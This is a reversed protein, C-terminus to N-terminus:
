PNFNVPVPRSTIFLKEHEARLEQLKKASINTDLLQVSGLRSRWATRKKRFHKISEDTFGPGFVTLSTLLPLQHILELGRDTFSRSGLVGELRLNVLENLGSLQPLGDDTALTEELSLVRLSNLRGIAELGADTIPARVLRLEWLRYLDALSDLGADGGRWSDPIYVKTVWGDPQSTSTSPIGLWMSEVSGGQERIAQVARDHSGRQRAPVFPYRWTIDRPLRPDRDFHVRYAIDGSNWAVFGFHASVAYNRFQYRPTIQEPTIQELRGEAPFVRRWLPGPNVLHDGVDVFKRSPQQWSLRPDPWTRPPPLVETCTWDAQSVDSPPSLLRISSGYAFVLRGSHFYRLEDYQRSVGGFRGPFVSVALSDLDVALPRRGTRLQEHFFEPRGILLLRQAPKAPLRIETFWRAEFTEKPNDDEGTLIRQAAMTTEHVVQVGFRRTRASDAEATVAAIWLRRKPLYMSLVLCRGPAIPHLHTPGYLRVAAHGGSLRMQRYGASIGIAPLAPDGASRTETATADEPYLAGVFRGALTYARLGSDQALVWILQGDCCVDLVIDSRGEGEFIRRARSPEFLIWVGHSSWMVDLLDNIQRWERWETPVKTLPEFAIRPHPDAGVILTNPSLHHRKTGDSRTANEIQKRIGQTLLRLPSAVEKYRSDSKLYEDWATQLAAAEQLMAADWSNRPKAMCLALRGSRAYLRFLPVNTQELHAYLVRFRQRTERENVPLRRVSCLARFLSRSPWTKSVHQKVFRQWEEVGEASPPGSRFMLDPLWLETVTNCLRDHEGCESGGHRLVPGSAREFAPHTAYPRLQPDLQWYASITAWMLQDAANRIGPKDEDRALRNLGLWNRTLGGFGALGIAEHRNIARRALLWRFLEDNREVWQRRREFLSQRLKDDLTVDNRSRYKHRSKFYTVRLLESVRRSSEDLLWRIDTILRLRQDVDGNDLLLAAERLAVAEEFAAARSFADARRALREFQQERTFRLANAPVSQRAAIERPVDTTLWEASEALTLDTCELKRQESSGDTLRLVIKTRVDPSRGSMAFEGEVFLPVLRDKIGEGTVALEQGIARAEEIEIVATGPVESIAQGLLAAYGIQLHDFSRTLNKSLMPTVAVLERVGGAFQTRTEVAIKACLEALENPPTARDAAPVSAKSPDTSEASWSLFETRLRVGQHCECVVVRVSRSQEVEVVSLLVLADARLRAGLSLREGTQAGLLQSLKLEKLVTELQDREVLEFEQESLMVTLLDSVGSERVEPAALVAWRRLPADAANAVGLDLVLSMWLCMSLIRVIAAKM